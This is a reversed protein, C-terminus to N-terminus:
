YFSDYRSLRTRHHQVRRGSGAPRQALTQDGM